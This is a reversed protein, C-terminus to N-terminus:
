STIQLSWGPCTRMPMNSTSSSLSNTNTRLCSSPLNELPCLAFSTATNPRPAFINAEFFCGIQPSSLFSVDNHAFVLRQNIKQLGGYHEELWMRYKEIMQRFMPWEVGCVFGRKKWAESSALASSDKSEIVQQDLWTVVQECRDVWKDWNRWVFPGGERESRLLEIGEHLERM